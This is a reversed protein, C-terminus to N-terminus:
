MVFPNFGTVQLFFLIVLLLVVAMFIAIFGLLVKFFSHFFIKGYSRKCEPVIIKDGTMREYFEVFVKEQDKTM